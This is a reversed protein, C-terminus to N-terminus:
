SKVLVVLGAQRGTVGDRRYSFWEDSEATCGGVNSVHMGRSQFSQHLGRRIDLGWTGDPSMSGAESLTAIVNEYRQSDVKYCSGCIAPGLLVQTNNLSGGAATIAQSIAEDIGDAAGRWGIHASLAIGAEPDVALLPVCDAGLTALARKTHSTVLVDVDPFVSLADTIVGVDTGHVLGPWTIHKTEVGLAQSLISRNAAVAIAADGVHSAVNLSTYPDASMGGARASFLWRAVTIGKKNVIDGSIV